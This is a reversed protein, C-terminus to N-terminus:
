GILDRAMGIVGDAIRDIDIKLDGHRIADRLQEVQVPNLTTHSSHPEALHRGITSLEVISHPRPHQAHAPCPALMNTEARSAKAQAKPVPIVALSIKM